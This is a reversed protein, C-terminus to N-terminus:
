GSAPFHASIRRQQVTRDLIHHAIGDTISAFARRHLNIQLSGLRRGPALGHNSNRIATISNRGIRQFFQKLGEIAQIISSAALGAADTQSEGNGLACHAKMAAPHRRRIPGFASEHDLNMQRKQRGNGAQLMSQFINGHRPFTLLCHTLTWLDGTTLLGRPKISWQRWAVRWRELPELLESLWNARGACEQYM